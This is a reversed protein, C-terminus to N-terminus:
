KVTIVSLNAVKPINEIGSFGMIIKNSKSGRESCLHMTLIMKLLIGKEIDRKRISMLLDRSFIEQPQNQYKKTTDTGSDYFTRTFALGIWKFMSLDTLKPLGLLNEDTINAQEALWNKRKKTKVM